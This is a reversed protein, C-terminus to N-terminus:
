QKILAPPRKFIVVSATASAALSMNTTSAVAAAAADAAPDIGADTQALLHV